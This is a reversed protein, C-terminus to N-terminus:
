RGCGGMEGALRSRRRVRKGWVGFVVAVGCFGTACGALIFLAYNPGLGRFMKEGFLPFVGSLVARLFSMPSIASAAYATYTDTLYGSLVNDFEVVSFGFFILSAISPWPSSIPFHPPVTLAFWWLGVALVPAAVFFGFLKDEPEIAALDKRRLLLVDYIRPLFTFLIGVGIAISVLSTQLNTFAYPPANYIVPLAPTFLYIVGYVTAGM